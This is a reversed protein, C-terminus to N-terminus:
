SLTPTRYRWLINSVARPVEGLQLTEEIEGNRNNWLIGLWILTAAQVLYPVFLPDGASDQWRQEDEKLFDLVLHSAQNVKDLLDAQLELDGADLDDLRLHRKAQDITVLM